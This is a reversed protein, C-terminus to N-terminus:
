EEEAKIQEFVQADSMEELIRQQIELRNSCVDSYDCFDCTYQHYKGFVPNQCVEGNHLSTGMDEILKNIKGSLQGMQALTAISGTLDGKASIKAPIYKGKLEYEMHSIVDNEDDSLVLGKMKFDSNEKSKVDNEDATRGLNLVSRASHMYLVGAPIGSYEGKDECITFLYVFMQLNLGNIVDSLQFTKNGSKYDVVRVYQVGNQEFTDVRDVAGRVSVKGNDPLSIIKPSIEKEEGIELEFAKAKFDSQSFEDRLRNVVCCIMKSLRMFQYKFRKGFLESDGMKNNLFYLLYKNVSASIQADTLKSFGDPNDKIISELVFHIVTGTQMPDMEARRLPRAGIGFKCFYRFSCNYYDEIRSASVYMNNGFLSRSLNKDKIYIDENGTLQKVAELKASYDQNRNFYEKLSNETVDNENFHSCVIQFANEKSQLMDINIKEDPTQYEIDPVIRKISTVIASECHKINSQCFSVFLKESPSCVAMFAFYKEQANLTEGYSYLKFDDAILAIRDSESLLGSSTVAAPFEGENAGAIFVARPNDCRIRDACGIQVNDLGSPVTGLDECNVMLSFLDYFESLSIKHEDSIEALSNLIEMLLDWIRGQEKALASKGNKDLQVALSKLKKDAGFDILANYVAESIDRCTKDKCRRKFKDLRGTIYRRSENIEGLRKRDSDTIEEAFGKTSQTFESNWKSGNINWVFAYNELQSIKDDDIECLGTKLLSFIDDSRYSYIMVRLLFCVFLVAPQTNVAQREDNFFPVNFKSFSFELEKKYKDLDRCIVAIDKAKYGSRLLACIQASIRDCEDSINKAAYINISGDNKYTDSVNSFINKQVAALTESKARHNETLMVPNLFREGAKKTIDRLIRINSNVYSFLDYRDSNLYSDTCLTIYVADSQSLIVELIKYEQAVFGSFGDIFVTKDTFYDLKILTEYLRTLECAPDYFEDSILADYADIIASIDYLKKSLIEKDANDAARLIDDCSVRCSKMEDYIRVANNVFDSSSANKGYLKFSDRVTEIAKKMLVAKAGKSLVPLDNGGYRRRIEDNLRSFSLNEVCGVNKEGLLELLRREAIFSYQEPTILVINNKGSVVAEKIHSFVYETKGCGARGLVLQLM